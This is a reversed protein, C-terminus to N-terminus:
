KNDMNKIALEKRGKSKYKATGEHLLIQIWAVRGVAVQVENITEQSIQRCIAGRLYFDVRWVDTELECYHSM